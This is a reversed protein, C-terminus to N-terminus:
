PAMKRGSSPETNELGSNWEFVGDASHINIFAAEHRSPLLFRESMADIKSSPITSERLSNRKKLTALDTDFLEISPVFGYARILSVHKERSTKTLHTEDWIFPTGAALLLRAEDMTEHAVRGENKGFALGLRDRSIDQGIRRMGTEKAWTSKGSGPLGCTLIVTGAHRYRIDLPYRGESEIHRFVTAADHPPPPIDDCLSLFLDAMEQAEDQASAPIVVRGSNDATSLFHLLQPSASLSTKFAALEPNENRAINFPIQHNDILACVDIIIDSPFALERLIHGALIKGSRSHGRSSIRGEETKTTSPKGIDHLAASVILVNKEYDSFTDWRPDSLMSRCVMKTHTLVDGEAHWFEDQPCESLKRVHEEGLVDDLFRDIDSLSPISFTTKQPRM